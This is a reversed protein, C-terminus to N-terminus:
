STDFHVENVFRLVDVYKAFKNEFNVDTKKSSKAKGPEPWPTSSRTGSGPEHPM